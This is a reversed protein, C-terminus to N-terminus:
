RMRRVMGVVVGLLALLTATLILILTAAATPGAQTLTLGLLPPILAGGANGIALALSAASGRGASVAAVLAMTTPFIPGCAFGMLLLAAVALNASVGSFSLLMAGLLMLTSAGALLRTARLRLGLVAGVARGLTLAFWFGAVAFAAQEPAMGPGLTLYLAAWGGIGIETGSYVLLLVGLLAILPWPLARAQDQHTTTVAVDTAFLAVPALALLLGAGLWIAAQPTAFRALAWGAMLPGIISGVGYFFNVLNLAATSRAPFLRPTLVSGGALIFGFGLGGLFAGALLLGFVGALSEGLKGLGMLLLGLALVIRLGFRGSLPAAVLQVLITGLSFATFLGGVVAVDQRVNAALAALSPGVSALSLGAALYVACLLALTGSRNLRPM